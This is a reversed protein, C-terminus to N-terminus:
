RPGTLLTGFRGLGRRQLLLKQANEPLVVRPGETTEDAAAAVGEQSADPDDGDHLAIKFVVGCGYTPSCSSTDGGGITTSYLNGEEDQLLSAGPNVGDAGGTFSYLVTEKGTPSLKFAVGCGTGACLSGSFDGGYATTGYLNGAADRVVGAFTEAGDAGGTFRYLVTDKGTRDVKFVVGCGLGSCGSLDGGNGTMGYLNGANDQVLWGDPFAGDAGNFTHLVTLKGTRDLKFVTGCGLFGTAPELVDSCFESSGGGNAAAGYLDGAADLLLDGYPGYGDAGGTFAHLVTEKGKPDLKFVVGCGPLPLGPCVGSFGGGVTVGYLNGAEDRVLGSSGGLGDAGGTFAHLVTQKGTPDLKFVVGCGPFGEFEACSADGNLDGGGETTGYLNGADDPVLGAVPYAGDTGGKFSYLVTEKGWRDVKFVTGCGSGFCESLNGGNFTTGYLNGAQDRILKARPYEGDAGIGAFTNIVTYNPAEQGRVAIAASLLVAGVALAGSVARWGRVSTLGHYGMRSTM